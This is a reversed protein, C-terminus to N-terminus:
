RTIGLAEEIDSVLEQPETQPAYRRIVEGSRDILFKTFNWKVMEIGLVGPAEAKLWNFVPDAHSGNVDLKAMVPFTVGYNTHCFNQIDSDNGPEQSGFQNCPFGVIALGRTSYKLYLEELGKYQPTFGCKSAVNVALVLKGAFQNLPFDSGDSNKVTFSHFNLTM